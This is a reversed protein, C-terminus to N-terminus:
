FLIYKLFNDLFSSIMTGCSFGSVLLLYNRLHMRKQYVKGEEKNLASDIWSTILNRMNGVSIVNIYGLKEIKIFTIIQMAIGFALFSITCM